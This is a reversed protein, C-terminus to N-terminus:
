VGNCGDAFRFWWEIDSRAEANLRVFYNLDTVSKSLDILWHVFSRGLRTVKCTHALSGILSLLDRKQLSKGEM